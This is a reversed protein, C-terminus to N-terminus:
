ARAPPPVSHESAGVAGRRLGLDEEPLVMQVFERLVRQKDAGDLADWPMGAAHEIAARMADAQSRLFERVRPNLWLPSATERDFAEDPTRGSMMDGFIRVLSAAVAQAEEEDLAEDQYLSAVPVDVLHAFQRLRAASVAIKGLYMRYVTESTVGLATAVEEADIGKAEAAKRMRGGIRQNESQESM